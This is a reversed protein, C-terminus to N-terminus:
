YTLLLLRPLLEKYQREDFEQIREWCLFIRNLVSSDRLYGELNHFEVYAGMVEDYNWKGTRQKALWKGYFASLKILDDSINKYVEDKLPLVTQYVVELFQKEYCELSIDQETTFENALNDHHQYLYEQQDNTPRDIVTPESIQELIDFGKSIMHKSFYKIWDTFEEDTLYPYSMQNDQTIQNMEVLGRGYANTHLRFYLSKSFNSEQVYVQQTIMEGVKNQYEREFIWINPQKTYSFGKDFFIDGLIEKITSGKNM